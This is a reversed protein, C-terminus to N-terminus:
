TTTFQCSVITLSILRNFRSLNPIVLNTQRKLERRWVKIFILTHFRWCHNNEFFQYISMTTTFLRQHIITLTDFMLPLEGM